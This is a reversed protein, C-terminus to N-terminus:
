SRRPPRATFPHLTRNVARGGLLDYGSRRLKRASSGTLVFRCGDSEILRHVVTLLEPVRQVEDLVVPQSAGSGRVMEELREPFGALERATEPDLLDVRLAEPYLQDLLTTKGTGRPGFLFFSSAPPSFRRPIRDPTKVM